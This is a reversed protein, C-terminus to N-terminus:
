NEDGLAKKIAAIINAAVSGGEKQNKSNENPTTVLHAGISASSVVEIRRSMSTTPYLNIQVPTYDFQRNQQSFSHIKWQTLPCMIPTDREELYRMSNHLNSSMPLLKSCSCAGCTNQKGLSHMMSANQEALSHVM